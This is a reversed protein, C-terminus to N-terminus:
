QTEHDDKRGPLEFPFHTIRETLSIRPWPRTLSGNEWFLFIPGPDAEIAGPGSTRM